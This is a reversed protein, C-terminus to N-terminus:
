PVDAGCHDTGCYYSFHDTGCYYSFHDAGCHDTGCYTSNDYSFHDAGCYDSIVHNPIGDTSVHPSRNSHYYPVANTVNNTQTDTASDTTENSLHRYTYAHHTCYASADPVANPNRRISYQHDSIRILLCYVRTSM